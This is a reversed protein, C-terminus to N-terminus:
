RYMYCVRIMSVENNENNGKENIERCYYLYKIVKKKIVYIILIM